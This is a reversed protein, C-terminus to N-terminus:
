EPIYEYGSFIIHANKFILKEGSINKYAYNNLERMLQLREISSINMAHYLQVDGQTEVSSFTIRSKRYVAMPDNVENKDKNKDKEEAM